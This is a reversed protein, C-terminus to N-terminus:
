SGPHSRTRLYILGAGLLVAAIVGAGVLWYRTSDSQQLQPKPPPATDVAITVPEQGLPAIVAAGDLRDWRRSDANLWSLLADLQAPAENSTAILVTRDGTYVTQLSGFRLGPALTLSVPEGSEGRADLRATDDSADVPLTLRSDTWEKAAILVAPNPSAIADALSVVSTDLPLASLRQLGAVITAARVTDAFADDTIGIEVRPLFAQPISQFGPPVPPGAGNSSVTSDGDITLTIPQSEGCGGTDGAANMAVGLNTFRALLRDPVDVWRDITGSDEAAWRDIIEGNVSVVLQGSLNSPLPTYSGELHVRLAHAARGLRTQDLAISVQPNALATAKPGPQGLDRLTMLDAALRPTNELPGVVAKSSLALQVLAGNSILRAQNLLEDAPGTVLLAPVGTSGELQVAAAASERIVLQREFPQAQPLPADGDLRAVTVATPQDGYHAVVAATLQVAADSEARTPSAPLFITLRALVPPLFEAVTAPVRETGTFDVATNNLRLPTSPDAVCYGEPPLLNTRIQVTISNDRVEAGTLPLRIAANDSGPLDVRSITRDDQVVTFSGIPPDFPLERRLTFPLEVSATVAAPTLGPPVPIVLSQAGQLGYFSLTPSTGLDRLGLSPNTAVQGSGVPEAFVQPSTLVMAILAVLIM